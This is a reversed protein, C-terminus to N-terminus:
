DWHSLQKSLIEINEVLKKAEPTDTGDNKELKRYKVNNRALEDLKEKRKPSGDDKMDFIRNLIDDWRMYQPNWKYNDIHNEGEYYLERYVTGDKNFKLEVIEWPEFSSAIIPSHTAYFFQCNKTLSQYYEIIIRQLDPYLSTEPEDFLITSNEPKILYLPLASLVVQKTGTSWSNYPVERGELSELKIFGIDEKKEISLEEKVRLSFNVVLRNICKEAIDKIPNPHSEKWEKLADVEKQMDVLHGQQALQSIKQSYKLELEHYSTVEEAILNWLGYINEKSFDLVRKNQLNKIEENENFDYKLGTPFYILKGKEKFDNSLFDFVLSSEDNPVTFDSKLIECYNYKPPSFVTMLTGSLTSETFSAKLKANNSGIVEFAMNDILDSSNANLKEAIEGPMRLLYLLKLLNTKGTGSQGIFCVKELAQGEKAHGKPYTLDLNFDKFQRFDKIYIEKVKM